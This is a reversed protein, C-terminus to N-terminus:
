QTTGAVSEASDWNSSTEVTAAAPASVHAERPPCRGLKGPRGQQHGRHDAGPDGSGAEGWVVDPQLQQLVRDRGRQREARHDEREARDGTGV